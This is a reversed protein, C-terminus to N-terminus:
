NLIIIIYMYIYTSYIYISYLKIDFFLLYFLIQIYILFSYYVILVINDLKFSRIYFLFCYLIFHVISYLLYFNIVTFDNYLYRVIYIYLQINNQKNSNHKNNYIIIFSSYNYKHSFRPGVLRSLSNFTWPSSRFVQLQGQFHHRPQTM